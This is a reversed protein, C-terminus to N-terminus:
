SQPTQAVDSTWLTLNDRLLQMILTSDKNMKRMVAPTMKAYNKELPISTFLNKEGSM